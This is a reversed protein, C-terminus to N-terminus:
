GDDVEISELIVDQARPHRDDDSLELMLRAGEARSGKAAHDFHEEFHERSFHSLAGLWVKVGTVRGGGNQVAIAEIKQMLSQM